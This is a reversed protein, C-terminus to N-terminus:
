RNLRRRHTWLRAPEAEPAISARASPSLLIFQLFVRTVSASTAAVEDTETRLLAPRQRATTLFALSAVHVIWHELGPTLLALLECPLAAIGMFGACAGAAHPVENMVTHPASLM